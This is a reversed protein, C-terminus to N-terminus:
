PRRSQGAVHPPAPRRGRLFGARLPHAAGAATACRASAAGNGTCRATRAGPGPPARGIARARSRPTSRTTSAAAAAARQPDNEPQGLVDERSWGTLATFARNVTVVTGDAATILIAETMGELAHAAVLLREESERLDTVDRSCSCCASGRKARRGAPRPTRFHRIRGDRDVLRLAVERPKGAPRRAGACRPAGSPTTPIRASFADAGPALDAQRARATRPAPTSGAARGPRGHAILDAANEAILRYREESRAAADRTAALRSSQAYVVYGVARAYALSGVFCLATVLDSTQPLIQRASCLACASAASRSPSCRACRAACAASCPPTSRPHQVPGRVPDLDPLAADRDVRRAARSDVYLNVSRPASRAETSTARACTLSTRTSSSCCASRASTARAPTASGPM